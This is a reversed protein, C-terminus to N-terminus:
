GKKDSLVANIIGDQGPRSTVIAEGLSTEILTGKTMIKRRNYDASVPNSIVRLIEARKTGNETNAAVNVYKESLLKVKISGGRVKRARRSSNGLRTESAYGGAEFGKKSRYLKKRGGTVKKKSLNHHWIPM